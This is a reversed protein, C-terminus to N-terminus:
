SAQGSRRYRRFLVFAAFSGALLAWTSPEPVALTTVSDLTTGFRMEDFYGLNTSGNGSALGQLAFTDLDSESSWFDGINAPALAETLVTANNAAYWATLTENGSANVDLRLVVQTTATLNSGSSGLNLLNYTTNGGFAAIKLSGSEVQLGMHFGTSVNFTSSTLSGMFGAAGKKGEDTVTTGRILGSLFYASSLTPTSALVRSSNRNGTSTPIGVWRFSGNQTTGVVGSHTLSLSADTTLSASNNQWANTTNFGSNGAVVVTNNYTPSGVANSGIAGQRYEGNAPAANVTWFSESAITQAHASTSLGFATFAAAVALPLSKKKM